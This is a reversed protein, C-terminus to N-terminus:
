GGIDVNDDGGVITGSFIGVFTSGVRALNRGNASVNSSGSTIIGIHGCTGTVIDGIRGCSLGSVSVDTSGTSVVGAMPIALAPPHGTCVGVCMDTVRSSKSM